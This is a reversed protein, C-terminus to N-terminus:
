TIVVTNKNLIYAPHYSMKAKRLGEDGADDERNIYEFEDELMCAFDRNIVAYDGEVLSLAKEVHTCFVGQSNM